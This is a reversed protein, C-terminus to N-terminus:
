TCPLAHVFLPQCLLSFFIHNLFFISCLKLLCSISAILTASSFLLPTGWYLGIKAFFTAHASPHLLLRLAVRAAPATSSMYRRPRITPPLSSSPQSLLFLPSFTSFFGSSVRYILSQEPLPGPGMHVKPPGLRKHCSVRCRHLPFPMITKKHQKERKKEEEKWKFVTTRITYLTHKLLPPYKKGRKVKTNAKLTLLLRHDWSM